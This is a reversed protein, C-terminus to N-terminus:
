GQSRRQFELILERYYHVHMLSRGLFFTIPYFVYGLILELTLQHIGFGKGVWTLLGNIAAVLSLITLLNCSQPIYSFQEFDDSRASM